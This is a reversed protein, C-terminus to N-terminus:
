RIDGAGVEIVEGHLYKSLFNMLLKHPLNRFDAEDTAQWTADGETRSGYYTAWDEQATTRNTQKDTM